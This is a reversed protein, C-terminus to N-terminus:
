GLNSWSEKDGDKPILNRTAGPNWCSLVDLGWLEAWSSQGPATNSIRCTKLLIFMWLFEFFHINLIFMGLFGKVPSQETLSGCFFIWKKWQRLFFGHGQTSDASSGLHHLRLSAGAELPPNGKDKELGGLHSRAAASGGWTFGFGWIPGRSHGGLAAGANWVRNHGDRVWIGWNEPIKPIETVGACPNTETIAM